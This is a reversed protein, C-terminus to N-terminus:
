SLVKSGLSLSESSLTMAVTTITTTTTPQACGATDPRARGDLTAFGSLPMFHQTM